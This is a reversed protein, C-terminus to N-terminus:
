KIKQILKNIESFVINFKEVVDSLVEKINGKKLKYTIYVVTELPHNMHYGAFDINKHKQLGHSLLNGM